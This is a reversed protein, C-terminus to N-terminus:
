FSTVIQQEVKGFEALFQMMAALNKPGAARTLGAAHEAPLRYTKKAAEYEVIRGTVMAGLWERVYRENLGAASAIEESTAPRGPALVEFLRTQHGISIMYALSAENLIGVLRGMFAGVQAEDVTQNTMG